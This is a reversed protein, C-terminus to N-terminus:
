ENGPAKENSNDDFGGGLARKLAVELALTRFHADVAAERAQLATTQATLADLYSSLGGRYRQMSLDYAAASQSAAEAADREQGAAADRSALADAVDQLAGVITANYSAVAEDYGGRAQRFNGRLQGGQFIPLSFAGGANGYTSGSDILNSIGLSTLGVLGRLSIDPLFAAKAVDIRKAAAEARLRAAVVDPRRGALAIGADAPIGSEPLAALAPPTISLGRDPGAGLLAAIAHRRLLIQEDNASLAARASAAMAQSQRLPAESDLGQRTRQGTLDVMSARADSAEALAKGREILRALDFYSSVVNSSLMLEAQRVDAEAAEAESTAAALAKRNKGWLDLDFDGTLALTGTSKWGKPVYERPMGNNYSQKTFGASGQAGLSPLTAAGAMEAAGRAQRIRAAAMAVSPSGALAEEVLANLQPDGYATWWQQRPWSREEGTSALSQASALAAPADIKPRPGLDPAACASLTLAATLLAVAGVRSCTQTSM